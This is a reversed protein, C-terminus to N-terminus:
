KVFNRFKNSYLESLKRDIEILRNEYYSNETNTKGLESIYSNLLNELEKIQESSDNNKEPTSKINRIRERWSM